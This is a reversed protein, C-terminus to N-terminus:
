SLFCTPPPIFAFCHVLDHPILCERPVWPPWTLLPFLENPVYTCPCSPDFTFYTGTSPVNQLCLGLTFATTM